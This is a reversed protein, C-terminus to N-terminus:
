PLRLFRSWQETGCKTRSKIPVKAPLSIAAAELTQQQDIRQQVGDTMQPVIQEVIRESLRENTLVQIVEM